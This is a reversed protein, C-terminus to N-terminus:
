QEPMGLKRLVDFYHERKVLYAPNDSFANAKLKAITFNPLLRNTDAFAARAESEQGALGYAYTLNLSIYGYQPLGAAAKQLETIAQDFHGLWLHSQGAWMHWYYIQADKPSRRIAEDVYRLADEPQGTALKAPGIRAYASVFNPNLRISTEFEAIAEVSRREAHYIKGKQFHAYYSGPAANLARDIEEEARRLQAARDDSVLELVENVDIKAQWILLEVNKPDLRRAAELLQRMEVYDAKTNVARSDIAQARLLYDVADPNDARERLSRRNEAAPLEYSLSRTVRFTVADRLDSLNSLDGDFRDAWLHAGSEADILQANVQIATGLRQVSGELAYRVGLERGIQKIDITKGKYTFATGRAIVFSGSIQSLDTTLNETIGDAFYEQAPDGSLNAFPLVVISLHPAGPGIAPKTIYWTAGAVSVLLVVCGAAWAALRRRPATTRSREAVDVGEFRVRYAHIPRAINKVAQEGMDEFTFGLKDRVPDRVGRSVCIGGPEALAELRAAVNVGDGFIDKDEVIIDGLNIGVRFEIRKDQPVGANREAMGRQVEVACRVADVVSAFEVLMGDGTTKVIRGHHEKIKPDILARRHARLQALTGEEDIGMLRSYGVVDAALIAALKRETRPQGM